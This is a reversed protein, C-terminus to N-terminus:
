GISKRLQLNIRKYMNASLASILFGMLVDKIISPAVGLAIANLITMPKNLYVNMLFYMYTVGIVYICILGLANAAMFTVISKKTSKEIVLGIVYAAAVFGILYGFSPTIIYAPGSLPKSFVPIGILGLLVYVVQSLLATKRGLLSGAMMVVVPQLTIPIEPLLLNVKAGIITLGAFLAALIMERTSFKM